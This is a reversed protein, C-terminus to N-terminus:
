RDSTTPTTTRDDRMTPITTRDNSPIHTAYKEFERLWEDEQAMEELETWNIPFKLGIRALKLDAKHRATEYRKCKFIVHQVDDEVGDVECNENNTKGIKKLYKNFKGHGTILQTTQQTLKINSKNKDIVTKFYHKTIEGNNTINWRQQWRNNLKNTAAEKREKKSLSNNQNNVKNIILETYLDLPYSNAIVQLADTSVTKYARTIGILATRPASNLKQRQRNNM